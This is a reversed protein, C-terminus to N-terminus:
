RKAVISPRGLAAAVSTPPAFPTAGECRTAPPTHNQGLRYAQGVIKITIFDAIQAGFQIPTGNIAIDGVVFGKGAPVEYVARLAHEADGAPRTVIWYQQPDSRDPATWGATSLGQIYLAVPNAITVDAKLRALTNIEAGIHPDSNRTAVGYRGCEILQREGTLVAGNIQRVITSRVAINLEAGLTNAGQVLHMAGRTTSNNWKNRPKYHGDAAFLDNLVVGPSVFQQYLALVKLRNVGALFSWYEPGECTFTVRVVKNTAPDRTVSWECYEDQLDRTGDATQWRDLDSSAEVAV